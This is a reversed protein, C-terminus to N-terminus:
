AEASADSITQLTFKRILSITQVVPYSPGASKTVAMSVSNGGKNLRSIRGKSKAMM